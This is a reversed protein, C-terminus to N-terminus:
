MGVDNSWMHVSLVWAWLEFVRAGLPGSLVSKWGSEEKRRKPRPFRFPIPRDHGHVGGGLGFEDDHDACGAVLAAGDRPAEEAFPGLVEADAAEGAVGLRAAM